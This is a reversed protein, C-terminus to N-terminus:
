PQQQEDAARDLQGNEQFRREGDRCSQQGRPNGAAAARRRSVHDERGCERRQEGQGKGGDQRWAHGERHGDRRRGLRDRRRRGHRLRRRPACCGGRDAVTCARGDTTPPHGRNRDDPRRPEASGDQEDQPQDAGDPLEVTEAPASQRPRRRMADDGVDGRARANAPRHFHPKVLLERSGHRAAPAPRSNQQRRIGSVPRVAIQPPRENMLDLV